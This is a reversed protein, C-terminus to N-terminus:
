EPCDVLTYNTETHTCDQYLTWVCDVLDLCTGQKWRYKKIQGPGCEKGTTGGAPICDKWTMAAHYHWCCEEECYLPTEYCNAIANQSLLFKNCDPEQISEPPSMSVTVLGLALGFTLYLAHQM